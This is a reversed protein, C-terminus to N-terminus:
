GQWRERILEDFRLARRGGPRGEGIPVHLVLRVSATFTKGDVERFAGIKQPKQNDFVSFDEAMLGSVPKGVSDTVQVILSIRHEAEYKQERQAKTRPILQIPSTTNPSQAWVNLANQNSFAAILLVCTIGVAILHSRFM